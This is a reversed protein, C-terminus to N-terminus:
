FDLNKLIEDVDMEMGPDQMIPLALLEDLSPAPTSPTFPLLTPDLQAISTTPIASTTPVAFVPSALTQPAGQAMSNAATSAPFSLSAQRVAGIPVFNPAAPQMTASQHIVAQTPQSAIPALMAAPLSSAFTVATIVPQSAISSATHASTITASPATRTSPAQIAALLNPVSTLLAQSQTSPQVARSAAVYRVRHDSVWNSAVSSKVGLMKCVCSFLGYPLKYHEKIVCLIKTFLEARKQKNKEVNFSKVMESFETGQYQILSEEFHLGMISPEQIPGAASSSAAEANATLRFPIYRQLLQVIEPWRLVDFPLRLPLPQATAGGTPTNRAVATVLRSTEPGWGAVTNINIGLFHGFNILARHWLIGTQDFARMAKILLFARRSPNAEENARLLVEKLEPNSCTAIYQLSFSLDVSNISGKHVRGGVEATSVDEEQGASASMATYNGTWRIGVLRSLLTFFERLCSVLCTDGNGFLTLAVGASHVSRIGDPTLPTWVDQEATASSSEGGDSVQQYSQVAATVAAATQPLSVSTQTAPSRRQYPHARRQPTHRAARHAGQQTAQQSELAATATTPINATNLAATIVLGVESITSQAAAATTQTTDAAAATSTPPTQNPFM